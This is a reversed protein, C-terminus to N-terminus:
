DSVYPATTIGMEIAPDFGVDLDNETDWYAEDSWSEPGTDVPTSRGVGDVGMRMANRVVLESMMAYDLDM